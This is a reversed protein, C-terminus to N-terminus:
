MPHRVISVMHSGLKFVIPQNRVRTSDFMEGDALYADFHIRVTNGEQPYTTADGGKLSKVTIEVGNIILPGEAMDPHFFFSLM